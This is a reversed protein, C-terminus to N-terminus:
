ATCKKLISAASKASTLAISSSLYFVHVALFMFFIEPVITEFDRNLGTFVSRFLIAFLFVTMWRMIRNEFLRIIRHSDRHVVYALAMLPFSFALTYHDLPRTYPFSTIMCLVFFGKVSISLNKRLWIFFILCLGVGFFVPFWDPLVPYNRFSDGPFFTKFSLLNLGTWVSLFVLLDIYDMLEFSRINVKYVIFAFVFAILYICGFVVASQLPFGPSFPELVTISLSIILIIAAHFCTVIRRIM